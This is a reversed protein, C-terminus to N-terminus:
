EDGNIEMYREIEIVINELTVSDREARVDDILKRALKLKESDNLGFPDCIQDINTIM